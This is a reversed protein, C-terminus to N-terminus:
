KGEKNKEILQIYSLSHENELIRMEDYNSLTNVLKKFWMDMYFSRIPPGANEILAEKVKEKISEFTSNYVSGIVITNLPHPTEECRPIAFPYFGGWGYQVIELEKYGGEIVIIDGEHIENGMMDKFGLAEGKFRKGFM